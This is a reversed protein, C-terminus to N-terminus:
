DHDEIVRFRHVNVMRIQITKKIFFLFSSAHAGPTHEVLLNLTCDM